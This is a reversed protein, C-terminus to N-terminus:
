LLEERDNRIDFNVFYEGHFKRKKNWIKIKQVNSNYTMFFGNFIYNALQHKTIGICDAADQYSSFNSKVWQKFDRKM